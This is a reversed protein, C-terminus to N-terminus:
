TPVAPITEPGCKGLDLSLSLGICHGLMELWESPVQERYVNLPVFGMSLSVIVSWSRFESHVSVTSQYRSCGLKWRSIAIMSKLWKGIVNMLLSQPKADVEHTAYWSLSDLLVCRNKPCVEV